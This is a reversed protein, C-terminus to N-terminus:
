KTSSPVKTSNSWSRVWRLWRNPISSVCIGPSPTTVPYPSTSPRSTNRNAWSKVTKPPESPSTNASFTQLTISLAMSFPAGMTPSFSEAPARM